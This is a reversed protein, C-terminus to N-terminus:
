PPLNWLGKLRLLCQHTSVASGYCRRAGAHSVAIDKHCQKHFLGIFGAQKQLCTNHMCLGAHKRDNICQTIMHTHLCPCHGRCSKLICVAGCPCTNDTLHALRYQLAALLHIVPPCRQATPMGLITYSTLRIEALLPTSPM